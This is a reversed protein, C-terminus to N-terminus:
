LGDISTQADCAVCQGDFLVTKDKQLNAVTVLPDHRTLIFRSRYGPAIRGVKEPFNLTAASTGTAARMVSM